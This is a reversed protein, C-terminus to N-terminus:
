VSKTAQQYAEGQKRRHIDGVCIEKVGPEIAEVVFAITGASSEAQL